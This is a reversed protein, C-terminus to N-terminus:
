SKYNAKLLVTGAFLSVIGLIFVIFTITLDGSVPVGSETSPMSVRATAKPSASAKAKATASPSATTASGSATFAPAGVAAAITFNRTVSQTKGASDKYSATIKHSGTLATPAIWTWAGNKPVTVKDTVTESQLTITLVTGAPATGSFQPKGTSVKEGEKPNDITLKAAPSVSASPSPSTTTQPLSLNSAPSTADKGSTVKRFDHTQGLTIEPVPNINGATTQASAVTGGGGQVFLSVITNKDYRAFSSLDTSRANSLSLSYQGNADTLASLASATPLTIYIVVDAAPLGSNNKVTGTLLDATKAPLEKTTRQRWAEGNQDYTVSGSGIKFSYNTDSDLNLLTAHHVTKQNKGGEDNVVSDINGDGYSIFGIAAKDTTWSVSFGSDTINTIRVNKPELDPSAGLKFIQRQNVLFVGVGLSAVLLLLGVITPIRKERKM